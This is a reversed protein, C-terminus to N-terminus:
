HCRSRKSNGYVKIGNSLVLEETRPITIHDAINVAPAITRNM